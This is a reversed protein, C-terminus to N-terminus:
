ASRRRLRLRREAWRGFASAIERGDSSGLVIPDFGFRRVAAVLEDRRRENAEARRRAEGETLWIDDVAGTAPDLVPVLVNGVEPFSQEWTPDQVVVPTVDWCHARLRAWATAGVADVFDSVVFVFTGTPLLSSHRGLEDLSAELSRPGGDYVGRDPSRALVLALDSPGRPALWRTRGRVHEVYGVDGREAAASAVVLRVIGDVAAPKDLWPFPAGYLGMRPRRDVVLVVRPAQDAFFERVVFEDASRAASLRASARWDIWARRDGPRYPRAGAVEDGHGRRPSRWEGFRVGAFRRQPVLPVPRVLTDSM